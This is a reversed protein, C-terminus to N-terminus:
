AEAGRHPIVWNAGPKLYLRASWVDGFRWKECLFEIEDPNADPKYRSERYLFIAADADQEIQGSERLDSLMPRKDNRSELGRNLQACILVPMDFDSKMATLDRSIQAVQQERPAKVDDPTMYQLYDVVLLDPRHRMVNARVRHTTQTGADDVFLPLESIIEARAMVDELDEQTIEGRLSRQYHVGAAAHALRDLYQVKSMEPTQLLVRKGQLAATYAIQGAVLSKGHAPRAAILYSQGRNLGGLHIDMKSIGTRIGTVGESERRRELLGRFESLTDKYATVGKNAGGDHMLRQAEQAAVEVPDSHPYRLAENQMRMGADLVDRARAYGKVDEAYHSINSSLPVSRDMEMVIGQSYPDLYRRITGADVAVADAACVRMATFIRRHEESYFDGADLASLSHVLASESTLMAGIVYREAELDHPPVNSRPADSDRMNGRRQYKRRTGFLDEVLKESM